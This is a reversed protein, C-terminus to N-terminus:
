IPGGSTRSRMLFGAIQHPEHAQEELSKALKALDAAVERTVRASIKECNRKQPDTFIDVFLDFIEPDRLQNLPITRRAGYGGYDGSFGFWLDFHSGIDCTFLFPPQLDLDRTYSSAQVFAKKM